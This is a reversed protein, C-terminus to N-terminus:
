RCQMRLDHVVVQGSEVTFAALGVTMRRSRKPTVAFWYVPKGPWLASGFTLAGDRVQPLQLRAALKGNQQSLFHTSYYVKVADRDSTRASATALLGNLTQKSLTDQHAFSTLSLLSALGEEETPLRNDRRCRLKKGPLEAQGDFHDGKFVQWDDLFYAAASPIWVAQISRLSSDDLSATLRVQIQSDPLTRWTTGTVKSLHGPQWLSRIGLPFENILTDKFSQTFTKPDLTEEQDMQALLIRTREVLAKEPSPKLDPKELPTLFIWLAVGSVLVLGVGLLVKQWLPKAIPPVSAIEKTAEPEQVEGPDPVLAIETETSSSPIKPADEFMWTASTIVSRHWVIEAQRGFAPDETVFLEIEKPDPERDLINQKVAVAFSANCADGLNALMEVLFSLNCVSLGTFRGLGLRNVMLGDGERIGSLDARDPLVVIGHVFIEPLIAASISAKLGDVQRKLQDLASPVAESAPHLGNIGGTIKGEWSKVEIVAIGTDLICFIDTESGARGVRAGAAVLGHVGRVPLQTLLHERVLAEFPNRPPSIELLEVSSLLSPQELTTM